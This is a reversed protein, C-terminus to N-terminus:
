AHRELQTIADAAEDTKKLFAAEADRLGQNYYRNGIAVAFFEILSEAEFRGLELEFEAAVFRQTTRVLHELEAPPFTKANM